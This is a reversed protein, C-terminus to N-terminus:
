RPTHPLDDYEHDAVDTHGYHVPHPSGDANAPPRVPSPTEDRSLWHDILGVLLSDCQFDQLSQHPDQRAM